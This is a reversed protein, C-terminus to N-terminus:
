FKRLKRLMIILGSLIFIHIQIMDYILKALEEFNDDAKARRLDIEDYTLLYDKKVKM